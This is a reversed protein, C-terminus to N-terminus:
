SAINLLMNHLLYTVHWWYLEIALELSFYDNSSKPWIACCTKQLLKFNVGNDFKQNFFTYTMAWIIWALFTPWLAWVIEDSVVRTTVLTGNSLDDTGVWLHLCFWLNVLANHYAQIKLTIMCQSIYWLTVLDCSLMHQETKLKATVKAWVHTKM